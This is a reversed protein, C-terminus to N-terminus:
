KELKAIPIGSQPLNRTMFTHSSYRHLKKLVRPLPTDNKAGSQNVGLVVLVVVLALVVVVVVVVAAVVVVAPRDTPQETPQDTPRSTM